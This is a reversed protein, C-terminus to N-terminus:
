KIVEVDLVEIDNNKIFKDIFLAYNVSDEDKTSTYVIGDYGVKCCIASVINSIIYQQKFEYDKQDHPVTEDVLGTFEGGFVHNIPFLKLIKHICFKGINYESGTSLSVEKKIVEKNNACYLVSVGVDNYRGHAAHSAPPEWLEDNELRKGIPVTRARYVIRNAGLEYYKNESLLKSIFQELRCFLLNRAIYAKSQLYDKKLTILEQLSINRALESIEHKIEKIEDGYFNHNFQDIDSQTYVDTYLSFSGNDIHSSWDIGSGNDCKPCKVFRVIDEFFDEWNYGLIEIMVDQVTSATDIDEFIAEPDDEEDYFHSEISPKLGKISAGEGCQECCEINKMIEKAIYKCIENLLEEYDFFYAEGYVVKKGCKPCDFDEEDIETYDNILDVIVNSGYPNRSVLYNEFLLFLKYEACNTCVM